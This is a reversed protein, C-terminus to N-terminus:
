DPAKERSCPFLYRTHDSFHPHADSGGQRYGKWASAKEQAIGIMVVGFRRDREAKRMYRRAVMEKYEGKKFHVVPIQHRGAFRQLARVYAQSIKGLAAPSPIFFGRDLLFRIVQGQTMLRPVYGQVFLRDVSRVRLTVHDALLSSITAM